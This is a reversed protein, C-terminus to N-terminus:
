WTGAGGGANDVLSTVLRLALAVALLLCFFVVLDKKPM